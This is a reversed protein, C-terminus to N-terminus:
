AHGAEVLPGVYNEVTYAVQRNAGTSRVSKDCLHAFCYPYKERYAWDVFDRVSTFGLHHFRKTFISM